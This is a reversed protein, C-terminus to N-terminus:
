EAELSLFHHKNQIEYLKYRGFHEKSIILIEEGNKEYLHGRGYVDTAKWGKAKMEEVFLEDSESTKTIYMLTKCCVKSIRNSGFELNLIGITLDLLKADYYMKALSAVTVVVIGIKIAKKINKKQEM